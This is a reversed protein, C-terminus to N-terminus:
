LNVVVIIIILTVFVVIFWFGDKVVSVYLMRILLFIGVFFEINVEGIFWWRKKVLIIWYVIFNFNLILNCDCYVYIYNFKNIIIKKLGRIWFFVSYLVRYLVDGVVINYNWVKYYIGWRIYKKNVM